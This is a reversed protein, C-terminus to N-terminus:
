PAAGRPDRPRGTATSVLGEEHNMRQRLMQALKARQEPSLTPGVAEYFGAMNAAGWGALHASARGEHLLARADFDDGQFAVAFTRLHAEVEEPDFAPPVKATGLTSQITTVQDPTLGLERTLKALRARSAGSAARDDGNTRMWVSWHAAVQDVLAVRQPRTLTAHLQNLADATAEHVGGAANAVEAVATDVKGHDMSGTAIGDAILLMLNQEAALAPRMAAFLNTQIKEVEARQESTIDLSDLSMAVFMTVGGNHHHRHHRTLDATAEDDAAASPLNSDKATATGAGCAASGGVLFGIPVCWIWRTPPMAPTEFCRAHRDASNCWKDGITVSSPALTRTRSM